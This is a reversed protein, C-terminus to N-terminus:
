LIRGEFFVVFLYMFYFNFFFILGCWVWKIVRNSLLFILIIFIKNCSLRVIKFICCKIFSLLKWLNLYSWFMEGFCYLSEKKYCVNKVFFM